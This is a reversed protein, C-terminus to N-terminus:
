LLGSINDPLTQWHLRNLAVSHSSIFEVATIWYLTKLCICASQNYNKLISAHLGLIICIQVNWLFPRADRHGACGSSRVPAPACPGTASQCCTVASSLPLSCGGSQAFGILGPWARTEEGRREPRNVAEAQWTPAVGSNQRFRNVNGTVQFAWPTEESMHIQRCAKHTQDCQSCMRSYWGEEGWCGTSISRVTRM